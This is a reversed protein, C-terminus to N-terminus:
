SSMRAVIESLRRPSSSTDTSYNLDRLFTKMNIFFSKGNPFALLSLGSARKRSGCFHIWFFDRTNRLTFIGETVIDLSYPPLLSNGIHKRLVVYFGSSYIGETVVFIFFNKVMTVVINVNHYLHQSVMDPRHKDPKRRILEISIELIRHDSM